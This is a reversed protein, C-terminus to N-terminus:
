SVYEKTSLIGDWLGEIKCKELWESISMQQRSEILEKHDATKSVVDKWINELINQNGQCNKIFLHAAEEGAAMYVAITRNRIFDDYNWSYGRSNAYHYLPGTNMIHKDKGLIALVFNVFNEGGGYIGLEKPWGGYLDFIERSILMGCTSMVPVRYPKAENRYGSFQYHYFGKAPNTELKYILVNKDLMYALPLHLSGNLEDYHKDYYDYMAKISGLSPVVHADLFLLYKGESNFVGKNKANWHSLKDPYSIYKLQPNRGVKKQIEAGGKDRSRFVKIDQMCTPCFEEGVTQKELEPCYNDIAIVEADLDKIEELVSQLTFM